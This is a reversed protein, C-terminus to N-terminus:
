GESIKSTSRCGILIGEVKYQTRDEPRHAKLWEHVDDMYFKLQTLHKGLLPTNPAKLEVIIIRSLRAGSGLIFVLDPRKNERDELAEDDVAPDYDAPVQDAIKLHKTLEERVSKVAM